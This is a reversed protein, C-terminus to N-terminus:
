VNYVTNEGCCTMITTFKCDTPNHKSKNVENINSKLKMKSNLKCM